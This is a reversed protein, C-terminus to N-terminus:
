ASRGLGAMDRGHRAGHGASHRGRQRATCIRTWRSMDPSRGARQVIQWAHTVQRRRRWLVVPAACRSGTVGRRACGRVVGDEECRATAALHRAIAELFRDFCLGQRHGRFVLQRFTRASAAQGSSRRLALSPPSERTDSPFSALAASEPLRGVGAVGCASEDATQAPALGAPAQVPARGLNLVRSARSPM